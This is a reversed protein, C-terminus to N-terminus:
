LREVQGIAGSHTHGDHPNGHLAEVGVIWNSQSTTAVSTKCGFEYRKHSKGKAICEV